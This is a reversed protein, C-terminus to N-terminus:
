VMPFKEEEECVKVQADVTGADMNTPFFCATSYSLLLFGYLGVGEESTDYLKKEL